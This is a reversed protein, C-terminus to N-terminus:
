ATESAGAAEASRKQRLYTRIMRRRERESTGGWIGIVEANRVAHTLCEIRVECQRCVSIAIATEVAFEGHWFRRQPHGRCAADLMWDFEGDTM